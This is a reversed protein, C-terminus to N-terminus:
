EVILFCFYPPVQFAWILGGLRLNEFEIRINWKLANCSSVHCVDGLGSIHLGNVNDSSDVHPAEAAYVWAVAISVVALLILCQILDTRNM